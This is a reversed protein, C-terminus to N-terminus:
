ISEATPGDGFRGAKQKDAQGQAPRSQHAPSPALNRDTKQAALPTASKRCRAASGTLFGNFVRIKHHHTAPQIFIDQFIPDFYKVSM